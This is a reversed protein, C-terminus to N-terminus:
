GRLGLPVISTISDLNVEKAVTAEGSPWSAWLKNWIRKILRPPAALAERNSQGRPLPSACSSSGIVPTPALGPRRQKRHRRAREPNPGLQRSRAPGSPRLSGRKTAGGGTTNRLPNPRWSEHFWYRDKEAAVQWFGGGVEEGREGEEKGGRKRRIVFGRFRGTVIM